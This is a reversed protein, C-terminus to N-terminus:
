ESQVDDHLLGMREFASVKVMLGRRLSRTHLGKCRGSTVGPRHRHLDKHLSDLMLHSHSTGLLYHHGSLVVKM